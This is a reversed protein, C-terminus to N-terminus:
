CSSSDRVGFVDGGAGQMSSQSACVGRSSSASVSAAQAGAADAAQKRLMAVEAAADATAQRAQAEAAQLTSLAVQLEECQHSARRQAAQATQVHPLAVNCLTSM